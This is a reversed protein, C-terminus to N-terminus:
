LCPVKQRKLMRPPAIQAAVQAVRYQDGHAATPWKTLLNAVCPLSFSAQAFYSARAHQYSLMCRGICASLFGTSRIGHQINWFKIQESIHLSLNFMILVYICQHEGNFNDSRTVISRTQFVWLNVPKPIISRGMGVFGNPRVKPGNIFRHTSFNVWVKVRISYFGMPNWTGMAMKLLVLSLPIWIIGM